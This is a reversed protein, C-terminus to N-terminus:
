HCPILGDSQNEETSGLHPLHLLITLFCFCGDGAGFWIMWVSFWKLIYKNSISLELKLIKILTIYICTETFYSLSCYTGNSRQSNQMLCYILLKISARKNTRKLIEHAVTTKGMKIFSSISVGLYLINGLMSCGTPKPVYESKCNKSKM